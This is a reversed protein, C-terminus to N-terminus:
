EAIAASSDEAVVLRISTYDGAPLQAEGLVAEVGNQLELLDWQQSDDVLTEQVEQGNVMRFVDVRDITVFVAQASEVATDHMKVSLTGTSGFSGSGGGCAALLPVLALATARARTVVNM